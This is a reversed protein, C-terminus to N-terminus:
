YGYSSHLMNVNGTAEFKVTSIFKKTEKDFHYEVLRLGATTSQIASIYFDNEDATYVHFRVTGLQVYDDFLVYNKDKGDVLFLWKQGDDWLIEGNPEQHAAVYMSITEETGDGDIDFEYHDLLALGETSVKDTAEITTSEHEEDPKKVPNESDIPNNPDVPKVKPTCGFSISLVVIVILILSSKKLLTKM